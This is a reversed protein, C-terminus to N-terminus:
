LVELHTKLIFGELRRLKNLKQHSDLGWLLFEMVFYRDKEDLDNFYKKVVKALGPVQDLTNKYNKEILDDELFLENDKFFWELIEDYPSVQNPKELKEIKPFYKPFLTKISMSILHFSVENAGEQEGEYVLEIKGNIAPIVGLFDTMRISTKKDQSILLRREATSYLNEFATISMRASVGSKLM